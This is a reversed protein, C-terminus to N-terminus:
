CSRCELIRRMIFLQALEKVFLLTEAWYNSLSIELPVNSIGRGVMMEGIAKYQLLMLRASFGKEILWDQVQQPSSNPSLHVGEKEMASHKGKVSLKTTKEASVAERIEKIHVPSASVPKIIETRLHGIVLWANQNLGNEPCQFRTVFMRKKHQERIMVIFRLGSWRVTWKNLKQLYLVRPHLWYLSTGLHDIRPSIPQPWFNLFPHQIYHTYFVGICSYANYGFSIGTTGPYM